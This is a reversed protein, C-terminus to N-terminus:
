KGSFVRGKHLAQVMEWKIALCYPAPPTCQVLGDVGCYLSLETVAISFM